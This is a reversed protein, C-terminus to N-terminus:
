LTLAPVSAREPFSIVGSIRSSVSVSRASVISTVKFGRLITALPVTRLVSNGGFLLHTHPDVFGPTAWAGGGDVKPADVWAAPLDALVGLWAVRGGEMALAADPIRDVAWTRAPDPTLVGRLNVLVRRDSM